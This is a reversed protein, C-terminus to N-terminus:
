SSCPGRARRGLEGPGAVFDPAGAEGVRTQRVLSLAYRIVHDTVPVERVIRQLELIEEATLM